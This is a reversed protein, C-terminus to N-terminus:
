LASPLIRVRFTYLGNKTQYPILQQLTTLMALNVASSSELCWGERLSQRPLESVGRGTASVSARGHESQMLDIIATDNVRNASTAVRNLSSHNFYPIEEVKNLAILQM